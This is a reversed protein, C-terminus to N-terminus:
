FADTVVLYTALTLFVKRLWAKIFALRTDKVVSGDDGNDDDHDDDDAYDDDDAPVMILGEGINKWASPEETRGATAATYADDDEGDEIDEPAAVDVGFKDLDIMQQNDTTADKLIKVVDLTLAHRIDRRKMKRHAYHDKLKVALEAIDPKAKVDDENM